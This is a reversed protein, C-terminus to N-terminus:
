PGEPVPWLQALLRQRRLRLRRRLLVVLLVSSVGFVLLQSSWGPTLGLWTTLAALWAGAGFFVLVGLPLTLPVSLILLWITFIVNMGLILGFAM